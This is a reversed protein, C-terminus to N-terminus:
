HRHRRRLFNWVHAGILIGGGAVTMATEWAHSPWGLAGLLLLGVGAVALGRLAWSAADVGERFALAAAPAAVALFVWHVWEADAAVGLIPLAASAAPLALCHVLCLGSASIAVGDWMAQKVM